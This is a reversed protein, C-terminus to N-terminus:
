MTRIRIWHHRTLKKRFKGIFLSLRINSYDYLIVILIIYVLYGGSDTSLERLMGTVLANM